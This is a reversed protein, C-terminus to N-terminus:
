PVRLRKRLVVGLLTVVLFLPLIIWSPFEPIIKISKREQAWEPLAIELSSLDFPKMLPRQDKNGSFDTAYAIDGIGDKDLDRGKYNSWYNGETGNDYYNIPYGSYGTVMEYKYDVGYDPNGANTQLRNDIFNNHYITNNTIWTGNSDEIVSSTGGAVFAGVNNKSIFNSCITNNIGWGIHLGTGGNTIRNVCVFNHSGDISIYRVDNEVIMSNSGSLYIGSSSIFNGYVLNFHCDGIGARDATVEPLRGLIIRGRDSTVSNNMIINYSGSVLMGHSVNTIKNNMILHNSGGLHICEYGTTIVNGLITAWDCKGSIGISDESNASLTLNCIITENSIVELTITRTPFPFGAEWVPSDINNIITANADEGVITLPKNIVISHENYTGKKIFIIDGATANGVAHAISPYDDPVIVMKNEAESQPVSSLVLSLVLFISVTLKIRM